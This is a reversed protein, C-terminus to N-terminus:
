RRPKPTDSAYRVGRQRAALQSRLYAQIDLQSKTVPITKEYAVLARAHDSDAEELTRKAAEYKARCENVWEAAELLTAYLEADGDASQVSPEDAGEDPENDPEDGEGPEEGEPANDPTQLTNAAAPPGFPNAPNVAGTAPAVPAPAGALVPNSRTFGPAAQTITERTITPDKAIARVVDVLPLGEATWQGTNAPDLEALAKLVNSM